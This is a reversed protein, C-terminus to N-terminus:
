VNSSLNWMDSLSVEKIILLRNTYVVGNVTVAYGCSEVEALIADEEGKAFCDFIDQYFSICKGLFYHYPSCKIISDDDIIMMGEKYRYQKYSWDKPFFRYGRLRIIPMSCSFGSSIGYSVSYGKVTNGDTMGSPKASGADLAYGVINGSGLTSENFRQPLAHSIGVSQRSIGKSVSTPNLSIGESVSTSNLSIGKSVSSNNINQKTMYTGKEIKDM